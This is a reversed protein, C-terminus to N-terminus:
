RDGSTRTDDLAGVVTVVEDHLEVVLDFMASVQEPSPAVAGWHKVAREFSCAQARLRRTFPTPEVGDVMRVVARLAEAILTERSTARPTSDDVTSVYSSERLLAAFLGFGPAARRGSQDPLTPCCSRLM